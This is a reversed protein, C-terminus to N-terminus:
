GKRKNLYYLWIFRQPVAVFAFIPVLWEQRMKIAEEFGEANIESFVFSFKGKKHPKNKYIAKNIYTLDLLVHCKM